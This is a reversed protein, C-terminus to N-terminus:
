GAAGLLRSVAAALGQAALLGGVSLWTSRESRLLEKVSMAASAKPALPRVQRSERAALVGYFTVVIAVVAAAAGAQLGACVALGAALLVNALYVPHPLWAFPGTTVRGGPPSPDRTRGAPGLHAFAWLRLALGGVLLPSGWLLTTLVPRAAGAVTLGM